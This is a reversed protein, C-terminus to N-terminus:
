VLEHLLLGWEATSIKQGNFLRIDKSAEILEGLSNCWPTLAQQSEYNWLQMQHETKEFSHARMEFWGPNWLQNKNGGFAPSRSELWQNLQVESMFPKTEWKQERINWLAVGDYEKDVEQKRLRMGALHWQNIQHSPWCMGSEKLDDTDQLFEYAIAQHITEDLLKVNVQIRKYLGHAVGELHDLRPMTKEHCDYLEGYVPYGGSKVTVLGPYWGCNFLKFKAETTVCKGLFKDNGLLPSNNQGQKLTGYVFVLPM